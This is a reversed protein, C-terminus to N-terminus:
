CTKLSTDRDIDEIEDVPISFFLRRQEATKGKTWGWRACALSMAFWHAFRHLPVFGRDPTSGPGGLWGGRPLYGRLFYTKKKARTDM